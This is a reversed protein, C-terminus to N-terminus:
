MLVCMRSRRRKEHVIPLGPLSPHVVSSSRSSGPLSPHVVSSSKRSSSSRRSLLSSRRRSRDHPWNAELEQVRYALADREYVLARIQERLGKLELYAPDVNLVATNKVQKVRDAFRLTSISEQYNSADASINAVMVTSSNGGLSNQLLRTLKSDRFPVHAKGKVLASICNGLASLSLNISAGEKALEKTAKHGIGSLKGGVTSTKGMTRGVRESGALDVMSLVSRRESVGHTDDPDRQVMHVSFVLHSRSSRDNMQTTAVRRANVVRQVMSAAQDASTIEVHTLGQVHVGFAATERLDLRPEADGPRISLDRLSENYIELASLHVVCAHQASNAWEFLSILCRPVMGMNSPVTDDGLMTWTKGSATQGYCFCTANYGALFRALPKSMVTAALEAQPVLPGFCRDFAFSKPKGRPGNRLSITSDGVVETLMPEGSRLQEATQPRVRVTVQIREEHTDDAGDGGVSKGEWLADYDIPIGEQLQLLSYAMNDKSSKRRTLMKPVPSKTPSKAKNVKSKPKDANAGAM